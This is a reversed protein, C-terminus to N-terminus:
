EVLDKLGGDGDYVVVRLTVQGHSDLLEGGVVGDAHLGRVIARCGDGHRALTRLAAASVKATDVRADKHLLSQMQHDVRSADAGGIGVFVVALLPLAPM